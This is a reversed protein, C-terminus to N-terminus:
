KKELCFQDYLEPFYILDLDLAPLCFSDFWHQFLKEATTNLIGKAMGCYHHGVGQCKKRLDMSYSETVRSVIKSAWVPFRSTRFHLHVLGSDVYCDDVNRSQCPFTTQGFHNGQDTNVFTSSWYFVKYKPVLNPRPHFHISTCVDAFRFLLNSPELVPPDNCDDPVSMYSSVKFSKKPDKKPSSNVLHKLHNLIATPNSTFTPIKDGDHSLREKTENKKVFVLYEDIDMPILLKTSAKANNMHKSLASHKEKFEKNFHFVRVGKKKFEILLKQTLPSSSAHDIVYVNEYGVIQAHYGVWSALSAGGNRQFLFLKATSHSSSSPPPLSFKTNVVHLLSRSLSGEHLHQSVGLSKSLSSGVTENKLTHLVKAPNSDEFLFLFVILFIPSFQRM